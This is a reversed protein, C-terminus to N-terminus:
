LVVVRDTYSPQVYEHDDLFLVNNNRKFTSPVAGNKDDPRTFTTVKHCLVPQIASSVELGNNLYLSLWVVVVLKYIM